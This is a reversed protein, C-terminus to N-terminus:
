RIEHRQIEDSHLKAVRAAEQAAVEECNKTTQEITEMM